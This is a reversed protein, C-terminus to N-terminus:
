PFVNKDQSRVWLFNFFIRQIKDLVGKPIWALSMWCVSIEELLSKVLVLQGARSLWCLRWIKLIKEIKAVIWQLDIKQYCNPKLQFHLYKLGLDLERVQFLCFSKYCIVEEEEMKNVSITRKGENIQM